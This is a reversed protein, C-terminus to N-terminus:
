YLSNSLREAAARMREATMPDSGGREAILVHATEGIQFWVVPTAGRLISQPLTVAFAGPRVAFHSIRGIEPSEFVIEIGPGQPSPFIQADLIKWDPDFAPLLIGTAARLEEADLDPVEPMSRMPLRINSADRAALAASVFDPAGVAASVSRVGLPAFGAWSAWLVGAVLMLPGLRAARRWVADRGFGRALRDAARRTDGAVPAASGLALRLERRLALDQMVQAAAQPHRGLHAEIRARQGNELQDDVYAALDLETVPEAETRM